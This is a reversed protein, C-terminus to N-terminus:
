KILRLNLYKEKKKQKEGKLILINKNMETQKNRLQILFDKQKMNYKQKFIRSNLNKNEKIFDMPIENIKLKKQSDMKKSLNEVKKNIKM